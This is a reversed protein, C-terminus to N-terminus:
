PWGNNGETAHLHGPYRGFYWYAIEEDDDAALALLLHAFFVRHQLKMEQTQFHSCIFAYLIFTAIYSFFCFSHTPNPDKLFSSTCFKRKNRLWKKKTILKKNQLAATFFEVFPDGHVLWYFPIPNKLPDKQNQSENGKSEWLEAGLRQSTPPHKLGPANIRPVGRFNSM